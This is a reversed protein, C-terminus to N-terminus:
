LLKEAIIKRDDGRGQERQIKILYINSSVKDEM